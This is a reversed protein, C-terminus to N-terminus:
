RVSCITTEKEWEGSRGKCSLWNVLMGSHRISILNLVDLLLGPQAGWLDASVRQLRPGSWLAQLSPASGM